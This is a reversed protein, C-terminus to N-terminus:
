KEAGIGLVAEDWVEIGGVMGEADKGLSRVLAGIKKDDPMTFARLVAAPDTIKYKWNRRRSLGAAKVQQQEVVVPVISAAQAELVEAKEEAKAVIAGAKTEAKAATTAATTAITRAAKAREAAQAAEQAARAAAEADGRAKAAEADRQAQEAAEREKRAQAEAAEQERRASDAKEQEQRAKLAAAEREQKAKAEAADRQRKAEAEAKAREAAAIRAQEADYARLKGRLVADVAQLPAVSRKFFSMVKEKAADMPRTIGLREEEQEGVLKAIRRCVGVATEYEDPTTVAMNQARAVVADIDALVQKARDSEAVQKPVENTTSIPKTATKM